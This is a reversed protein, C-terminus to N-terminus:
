DHGPYPGHVDISCGTPPGYAAPDRLDLAHAFRWSVASNAPIPHSFAPLLLYPVIERTSGDTFHVFVNGVETIQGFTNPNYTRGTAILRTVGHSRAFRCTVGTTAPQLYPDGAASAAVALILTAVAM